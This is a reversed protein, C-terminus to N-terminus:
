PVDQKEWYGGEDESEEDTEDGLGEKAGVLGGGEDTSEDNLDENTKLRQSVGEEEIEENTDDELYEDVWDEPLKVDRGPGYGGKMKIDVNQLSEVLDSVKSDIVREVGELREKTQTQGYVVEPGKEPIISVDATVSNLTIEKLYDFSSRLSNPNNIAYNRANTEAKMVLTSTNFALKYMRKISKKPGILKPFIDRYLFGISRGPSMPQSDKDSKMTNNTKVQRQINTLLIEIFVIIEQENFHKENIMNNLRGRCAIINNWLELGKSSDLEKFAEEDIDGLNFVDNYDNNNEGYDDDYGDHYDDYGM